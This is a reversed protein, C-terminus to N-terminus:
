HSTPPLEKLLDLCSTDGLTTLYNIAEAVLSATTASGTDLGNIFITRLAATQTM